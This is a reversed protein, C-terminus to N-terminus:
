TPAFGFSVKPKEQQITPEYDLNYIEAVSYGDKRFEVYVSDGHIKKALAYAKEYPLRKFEYKLKLRGKRLLAADIFSEESNFTCVILVNYAEGLIGDTINLLNSVATAQNNGERARLIDEADEIVLVSNSLEERVFSVFGPDAISNALHPPIYVVKRDYGANILKKIYTTKGTGPSGHFLVLGRKDELILSEMSQHVGAFDDEYNTQIVDPDIESKITLEELQFGHSSQGITYFTKEKKPKPTNKRFDEVLEKLPKFTEDSGALVILCTEKKKEFIELTLYFGRNDRFLIVRQYYVTYDSVEEFLDEDYFMDQSSHEMYGLSELKDIVADILSKKADESAIDTVYGIYSHAPM